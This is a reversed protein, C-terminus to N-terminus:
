LKEEPQLKDKYQALLERRKSPFLALLLFWLREKLSKETLFNYMFARANDYKNVLRVAKDLNQSLPLMMLYYSKEIEKSTILGVIGGNYKACYAPFADFDMDFVSGGQKFFESLANRILRTEGLFTRSASFVSSLDMTIRKKAKEPKSANIQSFTPVCIKVYPEQQLIRIIQASMLENIKCVEELEFIYEPMNRMVMKGNRFCCSSVMTYDSDETQLLDYLSRLSDKYVFVSEYEACYNRVQAVLDDTQCLIKIQNIGKKLLSLYSEIFEINDIRIYATLREGEYEAEAWDEVNYITFLAEEYSITRETRILNQIIMGVDYNTYDKIYQFLENATGMMPVLPQDQVTHLFCKRKVVPCKQEKILKLPNSMLVYQYLLDDTTPEIYSNWVYGRDSFYQTFVLEHKTVADVYNDIKGINNWYESYDSSYFMEKRVAIFYSQLHEPIYQLGSGEVYNKDTKTHRTMGWFDVSQGDMKEFVHSFSFVPGYVTANFYLVEDWQDKRKLLIDTGYKYATVDLGENERFLIEDCCAELKVAEEKKLEGNVVCILHDIYPHIGSLLYPVYDDVVGENDYFAFIAARKM